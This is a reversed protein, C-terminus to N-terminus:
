ETPNHVFCAWMTMALEQQTRKASHLVDRSTEQSFPLDASALVTQPLREFDEQATRSAAVQDSLNISAAYAQAEPTSPICDAANFAPRRGSQQMRVIIGQRHLLSLM